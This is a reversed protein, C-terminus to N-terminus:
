EDELLEITQRLHRPVVDLYIATTAISSHGLLEQVHHLEAGKELLQTAFYHRLSHPSIDTIGAKLAYRKVMRRLTERTIPFLNEGPSFKHTYIYQPIETQLNKTLPVVRDREGKGSNVFLYGQRIDRCRLSLLESRRLGTFALVKLMLLDRDKLRAWRDDRAAVVELLRAFEERSHYHPLRKSRKLKVQFVVDRWAYFPKLAAYYSWITSHTYGQERLEALFLKGMEVSPQREGLWAIFRTIQQKRRQLTAPSIDRVKLEEAYYSVALLESIKERLTM